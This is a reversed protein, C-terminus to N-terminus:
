THLALEAWVVKGGGPRPRSGWRRAIVAVLRLGRGRLVGAAPSSEQPLDPLEDSTDDVEVVISERALSLRLEGGNGTHQIANQVLETTVLLLDDGDERRVNWARSAREAVRRALAAPTQHTFRLQVTRM